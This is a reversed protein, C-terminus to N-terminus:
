VGAGEAAYGYMVADAISECRPRRKARLYLHTYLGLSVVCGAVVDAALFWFSRRRMAGGEGM